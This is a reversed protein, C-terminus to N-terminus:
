YILKEEHEESYNQTSQSLGTDSDGEYAIVKAHDQFKELKESKKWRQM